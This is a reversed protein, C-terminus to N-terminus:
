RGESKGVPVTVSDALKRSQYEEWTERKVRMKIVRSAHYETGNDDTFTVNVQVRATRNWDTLQEDLSMAEEGTLKLTLEADTHRRPSYDDHAMIQM